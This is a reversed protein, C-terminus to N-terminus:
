LLEYLLSGVLKVDNLGDFPGDSSFMDSVDHLMFKIGDASVYGAGCSRGVGWGVSAAVGVGVGCKDGKVCNDVSIDYGSGVKYEFELSFGDVDGDGSVVEGSVGSDIWGYDGRGVEDVIGRDVHWDLNDVINM